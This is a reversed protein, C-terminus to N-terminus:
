GRRVTSVAHALSGAFTLVCGVRTATRLVGGTQPERFFAAILVVLAVGLAASGAVQFARRWPMSAVVLYRGAVLNLVSAFM